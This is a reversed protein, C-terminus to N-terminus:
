TTQDQPSPCLCSRNSALWADMAPHTGGSLSVISILIPPSMEGGFFGRFIIPSFPCKGRGFIPSLEPPVNSVSLWGM